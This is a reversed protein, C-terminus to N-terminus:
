QRSKDRLHIGAVQPRLVLKKLTGLTSHYANCHKIYGLFSMLSAKIKDLSIRWESFKKFRKKARKMTQKRPLIHTPWIRYGCFNIGQTYLFIQTKLNLRLVLRSWLFDEIKCLLQKLYDKNTHIIVFDDMYRVYFKVSLEDKIFHDFENLYINAFLQSTLAGIPVGRGNEGGFDIIRDILWLTDKDRITQRIIRKLVKHNISPFYQSIDGKLIYFHGYNQKAQREFSLVRYMAAHTGKGVRCAYSDYIFKREFLPEIVQVLAHHVIRDKFPPAQILRKKPDYIYFERWRGPEWTEWILENQIAILNSELDSSFKLVETRYRKCRRACLYARYINEFDIIYAWLSNYTKPM